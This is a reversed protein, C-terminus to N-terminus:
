VSKSIGTNAVTADIKLLSLRFKSGTDIVGTTVKGGTNNVVSTFMKNLIDERIKSFVSIPKLLQMDHVTTLPNM